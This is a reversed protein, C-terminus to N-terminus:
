WNMCDNPDVPGLLDLVWLTEGTDLDTSVLSHGKLTTVTGNLILSREALSAWYYCGYFDNGAAHTINFRPTIGGHRSIDYVVFGDFNKEPGEWSHIYLPIILLGMEEQGILEVYRFAQYDFEVSSSSHTDPDQEAVYRDLDKPDSPDTADFLTIQVGLLRGTEEDAEQGVAVLLTNNDNISHLYQSFGTVNLEGLITPNKPDSLDLVYFPDTREFTVAYAVNDFFRVATFIERERGLHPIRGVESFVAPEGTKSSTITPIELIVIQNETTFQWVPQGSSADTTWFSQITTAVRLHGQFIDMSYQNLLLGPLSGVACPTV